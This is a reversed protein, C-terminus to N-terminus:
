KIELKKLEMTKGENLFDEPTPMPVDKMNSEGYVCKYGVQYTYICMIDHMVIKYLIKTLFYWSSGANLCLILKEKKM